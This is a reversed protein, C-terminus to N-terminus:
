FSFDDDGLVEALSPNEIIIPNGTKPDIKYQMLQNKPKAAPLPEAFWKLKDLHPYEPWSIIEKTNTWVVANGDVDFSPRRRVYELMLEAKAYLLLWDNFSMEHLDEFKYAPFAELILLDGVVYPNDLLLERYAM